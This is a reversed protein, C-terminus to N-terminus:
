VRAAIVQVLLPQRTAVLQSSGFGAQRLMDTIERPTRPRGSGMAALYFGFYADGMRRAGPAESMPEAILLVGGPPLAARAARLIAAAADDDHDHLVRVLTAIDAGTPLADSLFSGPEVTARGALGAAALAAKARETVAPLDFLTFSLHAHRAAVARTFAGEGGGIDLLRTHRAMPWADLIESAVLSQTAAMLGSYAAVDAPAADEPTQRAAYAWYDKLKQSAPAGKLLGVPDSLDAYLLAHHAIMPPLAPNGLLAAGLTGLAFRGDALRETLDLAACGKLLREAAARELGMQAALADMTKPGSELTRFLDLQVAASLIQSYVFGSVLGFLANAERRARGRTLFFGAAWHQFAPKAITRNRFALWRERLGPGAM